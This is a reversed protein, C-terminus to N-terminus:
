SCSSSKALKLPAAAPDALLQIRSFVFTKAEKLCQTSTAQMDFNKMDAVARSLNVINQYAPEKTVAVCVMRRIGVRLLTDALFHMDDYSIKDEYGARNDLIAFFTSSPNTNLLKRYVLVRHERTVPGLATMFNIHEGGYELTEYRINAITGSSIKREQM